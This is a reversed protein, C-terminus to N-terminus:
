LGLFGRIRGTAADMRITKVKGGAGLVKFRYEYSSSGKVLKVQLVRGGDSKNLIAIAKSLSIARGERVADRASNHDNDEDQDDGDDNDDGDDDGGHGSSGGDSEGDADSDGDKAPAPEVSALVFFAGALLQLLERKTLTCKDKVDM